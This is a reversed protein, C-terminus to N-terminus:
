SPIPPTQLSVPDSEAKEAPPTLAKPPKKRIERETPHNEGALVGGMCPLSRDNM